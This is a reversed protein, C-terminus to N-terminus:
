DQSSLKGEADVFFISLNKGIKNNICYLFIKLCSKQKEKKYVDRLYELAEKYKKEIAPFTNEDKTEVVQVFYNTEADQDHLLKLFDKTICHFDSTKAKFEILCEKRETKKDHICVDISAANKINNEDIIPDIKNGNRSFRYSRETPAEVSYCINNRELEKIFLIKAEQECVRKKKKNTKSDNIKPFIINGKGQYADSLKNLAKKILDEIVNNKQM